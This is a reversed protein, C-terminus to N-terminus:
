RPSNPRHKGPRASPAIHRTRSFKGSRAVIEFGARVCRRVLELSMSQAIARGKAIRTRYLTSGPTGARSGPDWAQHSGWGHHHSWGLSGDREASGDRPQLRHRQFGTRGAWDLTENTETPRNSRKDRRDSGMRTPSGRCLARVPGRQQTAAVCGERPSPIGARRSM